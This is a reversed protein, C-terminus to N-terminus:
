VPSSVNKEGTSLELISNNIFKACAFKLRIQEFGQSNKNVLGVFGDRKKKIQQMGTRINEM